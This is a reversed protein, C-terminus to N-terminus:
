LNDQWLKQKPIKLDRLSSVKLNFTLMYQKSFGFPVWTIHAEWCRLDRYITFSTYNINKLKFDYGTRIDFKWMPTPKISFTGSLIQTFVNATSPLTVLNEPNPPATVGKIFNLNYSLGISFPQKTDKFAKIQANTLTGNISFTCNTFRPAGLTDSRLAKTNIKYPDFVSVFNLTVINKFLATRATLNLLSLKNKKAAIDYSGSVSLMQLINVKKYSISSDTKQRIKADFTNNINFTIAGSQAGAPGGFLGNQFRSYYSTVKNSDTVQKYFGLNSNQMDPHYAFGVTPIIQHRIQKIFKSKFLYDGYLRTTLNVQYNQDFALAPARRVFTNVTKTDPDYKEEATQFNTYQQFTASPSLTFYKLLSINTGIPISQHLGYQIASAAAHTLILSDQISLSAKTQLSYDIYLKDLWTQTTHASNKFPYMRNVAYTLQPANIAINKQILDETVGANITLVSSRFMKTFAINSQLTSQLYTASSQNNYKGFSPSGVNVAASFRITPNFKNDQQHNWTVRFNSAKTLANPDGIIHDEPIGTVNRSYAINLSGSYKYNVKYSFMPTATGGSANIAWSGSSYYTAFLSIHLKNSVPLFFGFNQLYFGQTASYGYSPLIVGTKSKEKKVNPFFGFPLGLPTPINAVELFVPGTVIKDNPIIKARSARFYIKADEFECPICKMKKIYMVNNSDKKVQEGFIFFDNQKTLIGYIKGRKTKFNYIVKESKMQDKGQKFEPSGKPIGNSDPVGVALIQSTNNDIEIYAAKLDFDDYHVTANGYLFVKKNEAEIKISDDAAYDVKSGIADDDGNIALTDVKKRITDTAPKATDPKQLFFLNTSNKNSNLFAHANVNNILLACNFVILIFVQKTM